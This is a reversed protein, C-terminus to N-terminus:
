QSSTPMQALYDLFFEISGPNFFSLKRRDKYTGDSVSAMTSEIRAQDASDSPFSSWGLNAIIAPEQAREDTINKKKGLDTFIYGPRYKMHVIEHALIAGWSRYKVNKANEAFFFSKPPASVVESTDTVAYKGTPTILSGTPSPVARQKKLGWYDFAPACFERGFRNDDDDFLLGGYLLVKCKDAIDDASVGYPGPGRYTAAVSFVKLDRWMPTGAPAIDTPVMAGAIARLRVLEQRFLEPVRGQTNCFFLDMAPKGWCNWDVVKKQDLRAIALDLLKLCDAIMAEALYKTRKTLANHGISFEPLGALLNGSIFDRLPKANAPDIWDPYPRLAKGYDIM